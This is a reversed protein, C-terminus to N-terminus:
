KKKRELMKSLREFHAAPNFYISFEKGDKNSATILDCLVKGQILAQKKHRLGFFYLADYEESVSITEYATEPTKGDGSAVLSDMLGRAWRYHDKASAEDGSKSLAIGTYFHIRMDVPCHSLWSRGLQVAEQWKASNLTEVIVKLPRDSECRDYFTSSWGYEKRLAAYDPNASWDYTKSKMKEPQVDAMSYGPLLTLLSVLLFIHKM